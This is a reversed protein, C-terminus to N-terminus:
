GDTQASGDSQYTQVQWFDVNNHKMRILVNALQSHVGGITFRQVSFAILAASLSGTTTSYIQISEIKM